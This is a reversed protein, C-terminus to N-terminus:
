ANTVINVIECKNTVLHCNSMLFLKVKNKKPLKQKAMRNDNTKRRKNNIVFSGIRLLLFVFVCWACMQYLYIQPWPFYFRLVGTHPSIIHNLSHILDFCSIYISLVIEIETYVIKQKKKEKKRWVPIFVGDIM